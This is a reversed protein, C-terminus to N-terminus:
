FKIWFGCPYFGPLPEQSLWSLVWYWSAPSERPELEIVILWLALPKLGCLLYLLLSCCSHGMCTLLMNCFLNLLSHLLLSIASISVPVSTHLLFPIQLFYGFYYECTMQISLNIQSKREIKEYQNYYKLQFICMHAPPIKWNTAYKGLRCLTKLENGLVAYVLGLLMYRYDCCKPPLLLFLCRSNLTM